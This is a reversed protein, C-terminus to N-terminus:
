RPPRPTMHGRRAALRCAIGWAQNAHAWEDSLAALRRPTPGFALPVRPLATAHVDLLDRLRAIQKIDDM